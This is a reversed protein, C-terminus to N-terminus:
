RHGPLDTNLNQDTQTPLGSKQVAQITFFHVHDAYLFYTQDIQLYYKTGVAHQLCYPYIALIEIEGGAHRLCAM